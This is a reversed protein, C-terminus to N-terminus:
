LESKLYRVKLFDLVSKLLPSFLDILTVVQWYFWTEIVLGMVCSKGLPFWFFLPVKWTLETREIHAYVKSIQTELILPFLQGGHRCLSISFILLNIWVVYESSFFFCSFSIATFAFLYFLECFRFLLCPSKLSVTSLYTSFDRALPDSLSHFLCLFDTGMIAKSFGRWPSSLLKCM